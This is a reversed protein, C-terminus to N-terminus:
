PTKHTIRQIKPKNREIQSYKIPNSLVLKQGFFTSLVHHITHIDHVLFQDKGSTPLSPPVRGHPAILGPNLIV